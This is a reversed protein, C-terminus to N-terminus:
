GIFEINYSNNQYSIYANVDTSAVLTISDGATASIIGGLAMNQVLGSAHTTMANIGYDANNKRWRAMHTGPGLTTLHASVRYKGTVPVTFVGASFNNNNDTIVTLPRWLNFTSTSATTFNSNGYVGIAQVMPQLPKTTRGSPDISFVATGGIQVQFSNTGAIRLLGTSTTQPGIIQFQTGDFIKLQNVSTDYWLDGIRNDTPATASENIVALNHWADSSAGERYINLVKNSSDYWLQGKLPAAPQDIGSFNELLKVFNENLYLGYTPYNKGVLALDTTTVDLTGDQLTVLTDGNTKTLYYPM